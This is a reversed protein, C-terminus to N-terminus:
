KDSSTKTSKLPSPDSETVPKQIIGLGSPDQYVLAPVGKPTISNINMYELKRKAVWEEFAVKVGASDYTAAFDSTDHLFILGGDKLAPYWLDLEKLTNEYQHSSDIYVLNIEGQFYDQVQQPLEPAASDSEVIRVYDQLNAKHIWGAVYDCCFHDIDITMFAHKKQMKRMMFGILLTSYGAFHGLQVINGIASGMIFGQLASILPVPSEGILSKQDTDAYWQQIIHWEEDSLFSYVPPTYRNQNINYWWYRNKPNSVPISLRREEAPKDAVNISIIKQKASGILHPTNEHIPYIAHCTECVLTTSSYALAQKCVPCALIDLNREVFSANGLSTPRPTRPEFTGPKVAFCEVGKYFNIAKGLFYDDCPTLMALLLMLTTHLTLMAETEPVDPNVIAAKTFEHLTYYLGGAHHVDAAFAEFGV